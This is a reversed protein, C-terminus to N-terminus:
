GAIVANALKDNSGPIRYSELWCYTTYVDVFMESFSIMLQYEKVLPAWLQAATKANEPNPM